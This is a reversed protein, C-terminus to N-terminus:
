IALEALLCSSGFGRSHNAGQNPLSTSCTDQGSQSRDATNWLFFKGFALNKISSAQKTLIVQYRKKHASVHISETKHWLCTFFIASIWGGQGRQDHKSSHSLKKVGTFL